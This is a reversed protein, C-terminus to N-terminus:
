GTADRVIRSGEGGIVLVVGLDGCLSATGVHHVVTRHHGSVTVPLAIVGEVRISVAAGVVVGSVTPAEHLRSARVAVTGAAEVASNNLELKGVVDSTLPM